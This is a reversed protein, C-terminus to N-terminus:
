GLSHSAKVLLIHYFNHLNQPRLRLFDQLKQGKRGPINWGSCSFVWVLNKFTSLGHLFFPWASALLLVGPCTLPIGKTEGPGALDSASQCQRCHLTLGPVALLVDWDVWLRSFCYIITRLSPRCALDSCTCTWTLLTKNFHWWVWANCVTQPQEQARCCLPTTVVSVTRGM